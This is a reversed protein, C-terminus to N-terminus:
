VKKFKLLHKLDKNEQELFKIRNELQEIDILDSRVMKKDYTWKMRKNFQLGMKHLVKVAEFMRKQKFSRACNLCACMMNSQRNDDTLGNIFININNKDKKGCLHCSKM